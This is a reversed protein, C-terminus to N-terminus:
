VCVRPMYVFRARLKDYDKLCRDLAAKDQRVLEQTKSVESAGEESAKAKANLEHLALAAVEQLEKLEREKVDKLRNTTATRLKADAIEDKLSAIARDAEIKHQQARDIQANLLSVEARLGNLAARRTNLENLVTEREKLLEEKRALQDGTWGAGSEKLSELSAIKGKAERLANETSALVLRSKQNEEQLRATDEQLQKLASSLEDEESKVESHVVRAADVESTLSKVKETLAQQNTHSTQLQNLLAQMEDRFPTMTEDLESVLTSVSTLIKSVSADM